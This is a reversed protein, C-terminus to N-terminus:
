GLDQEYDDEPEWVYDHISSFLEPYFNINFSLAKWTLSGQFKFGKM